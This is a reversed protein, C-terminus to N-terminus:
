SNTLSINKANAGIDNTNWASGNYVSIQKIIAM